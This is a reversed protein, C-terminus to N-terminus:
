FAARFAPLFLSHWGDTKVVFPGGAREARRSVTDAISRLGRGREPAESVRLAADVPAPESLSVTGPIAALMRALATSGCRTQHFVFGDPPRAEDMLLPTAFRFARNFPRARARQVSVDFFSDSLPAGAFHAWEVRLGRPTSAVATPLWDGPAPGDRPPRDEKASGALMGPQLVIGRAAAAEVAAAVLVDERVPEALAQQLAEDAFLIAEFRQLAGDADPLLDRM